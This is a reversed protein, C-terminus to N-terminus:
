AIFSSGSFKLLKKRLSKMLFTYKIRQWIPLQKIGDGSRAFIETDKLFQNAQAVAASYLNSIADSQKKRSLFFSILPLVKDCTLDGFMAQRQELLDPNYKEGTPRCLIALLESLKTTSDSDLVSEMDVWEGLTLKDALSIIYHKHNVTILSQPEFNNDFVFAIGKCVEDFVQTPADLLVQRDVNCVAAVYNVYETKTQPDLMFWREYDALKVEEWREPVCLLIDDFEIKMM